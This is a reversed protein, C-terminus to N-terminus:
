TRNSIIYMCCIYSLSVHVHVTCVQKHEAQLATLADGVTQKEFRLFQNDGNLTENEKVLDAMRLLLVSKESSLVAMKDRQEQGEQEVEELKSKYQAIEEQAAVLSSCTATLSAQSLFM